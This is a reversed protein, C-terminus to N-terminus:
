RISPFSCGGAETRTGEAVTAGDKPLPWVLTNPVGGNSRPRPPLRDKSSGGLDLATGKLSDLTEFSFPAAKSGGLLIATGIVFTATVTILRLLFKPDNTTM